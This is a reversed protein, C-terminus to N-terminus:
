PDPDTHIAIYSEFFHNENFSSKRLSEICNMDDNVQRINNNVM